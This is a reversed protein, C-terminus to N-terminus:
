TGLFQPQGAQLSWHPSVAFQRSLASEIRPQRVPDLGLDANDGLVGLLDVLGAATSRRDATGDSGVHGLVRDHVTALRERVVTAPVGLSAAADDATLEGWAILLLTEREAASLCRLVNAVRPDLPRTVVLAPHRAPPQHAHRELAELRHRETRWRESIVQTTLAYLWPRDSGYRAQESPRSSAARRFAEVAADEAADDGLRRRVYRVVSGRHEEFLRIFTPSGPMWRCIPMRASFTRPVNRNPDAQWRVTARSPDFM